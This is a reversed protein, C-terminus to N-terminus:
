KKPEVADVAPVPPYAASTEDSGIARARLEYDGIAISKLAAPTAKVGASRGCTVCGVARAATAHARSAGTGGTAVTTRSAAARWALASCGAETDSAAADSAKGEACCLMKGVFRSAASSKPWPLFNVPYM